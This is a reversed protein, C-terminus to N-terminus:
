RAFFRVTVNSTGANVASAVFRVYQVAGEFLLLDSADDLAAVTDLPVWPGTEPTNGIHGEMTITAVNDVSTVLASIYENASVGVYDYPGDGAARPRIQNMPITGNDPREGYLMKEHM